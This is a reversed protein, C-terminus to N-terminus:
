RSRDRYRQRPARSGITEEISDYDVSPETTTIEASVATGRREEASIASTGRREEASVERSRERSSRFGSTSRGFGSIHFTM